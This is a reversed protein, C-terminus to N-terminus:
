CSENKGSVGSVGDKSDHKLDVKKLLHVDLCASLKRNRLQLWMEVKM